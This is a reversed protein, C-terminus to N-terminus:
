LTYSVLSVTVCARVKSVIHTMCGAPGMFRSSALATMSYAFGILKQIDVDAALACAVLAGCSSGTFTVDLGNGAVLPEPAPPKVKKSDSSESFPLGNSLM